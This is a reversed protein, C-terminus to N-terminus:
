PLFLFEKSNLLVHALDHWCGPQDGQIAAACLDVEAPTAPRGFAQRIMTAIRERTDVIEATRHCWREVALSVLPDNLMGLAQAPVNSVNRRGVCTAPMPFDFALQFPDLFNRRVEIFIARRGNGDLPGSDRPRGRGSMQPRLHVPVSPGELRLDLSGATALLADRLAESTLRRVPRWSWLRYDPDAARSAPSPHSTARYTSSTVIERILWKISWRHRVFEGALYDLLEPHTPRGGLVGLNDPSDVLGRGMLHHWIRNVMVRAVLPHSPDTLSEALELRGSSSAAAPRHAALDLFCGRPVTGGLQHPDGRRHLPCDTPTGEAAALLKVPVPTQEDLMALESRMAVMPSVVDQEGHGPIASNGAAHSVVAADGKAVQGADQCGGQTPLPVGLETSLRVLARVLLVAEEQRDAPTASRHLQEFAGRCHRALEEMWQDFSEAPLKALALAVPHPQVPPSNDALRIEEIEFWGNGTDELSLYAPHGLYKGLDGRHTVWGTEQKQDVDIRMGKFLLDHFETMFYNDVILSAHVGQGRMKICLAPRTLAFGPSRLTVQQHTGLLQSAVCGKRIPIPWPESFWDIGGALDFIGRGSFLERCVGDGVALPGDVQWSGPLGADFRALLETNQLWAQFKAEAEQLQRTMRRHAEQWREQPKVARLICLAETIPLLQGLEEDSKEQLRGVVRGLWQTWTTPAGGQSALRAITEAPDTPGRPPDSRHQLGGEALRPSAGVPMAVPADSASRVFSQAVKESRQQLAHIRMAHRHVRGQPDTLAYTRRTGMLVGALGYYDDMGIADFKHDHCRACAVTMGLFAKSFVDIQNELRTAWDAQIDVPAHVADGLFWFGTLALSQNVGTRPDIRPRALLDGAIHEKVFRDYPVDDNLATVVADRYRWAHHIPYDFEHGLTEAYRMLDLWHRGWHVGFQPSELLRDVVERYYREWEAETVKETKTIRALDPPLGVLDVHLRRILVHRDAPAAPALGQDSLRAYIFRDMANRSWDDEADAIAPSTIPRWSWHAHRRQQKWSAGGSAPMAVTAPWPAGRQIWEVLVEIQSHSLEKDPPMEYSERRVAEILLSADPEGPVIAPGSDGGELMAPRSDLALGGKRNGFAESHCSFCNEALLPRVQKEFWEATAVDVEAERQGTPPAPQGWCTTAIITSTAVVVLLVGHPLFASCPFRRIM